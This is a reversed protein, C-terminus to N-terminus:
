KLGGEREDMFNVYIVLKQDIDKTTAESNNSEPECVITDRDLLEATAVIASKNANYLM